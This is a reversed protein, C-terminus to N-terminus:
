AKHVVAEQLVETAASAVATSKMTRTVALNDVGSLVHLMDQAPDVMSAAQPLELGFALGPDSRTRCYMSANLRIPRALRSLWLGFSTRAHVPGLLAPRLQAMRQDISAARRAQYLGARTRREDARHPTNQRARVVWSSHVSEAKLM